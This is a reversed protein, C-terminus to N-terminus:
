SVQDVTDIANYLDPLNVWHPPYKFRATDFLLAKDEQMCLGGVPCFHGDGTQNLNKRSYNCIQLLGPFQSSAETATRFLHEDSAHIFANQHM